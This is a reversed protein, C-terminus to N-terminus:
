ALMELILNSNQQRSEDISLEAKEPDDHREDM